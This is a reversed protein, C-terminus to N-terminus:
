GGESFGAAQKQLLRRENRMDHAIADLRDAIGFDALLAQGKSNFLINAPKIDRHIIDLKHAHLLADALQKFIDLASSISPPQSKIRAELSGGNAYDTILFPLGSEEDVGAHQIHLIHPNEDLLKLFNAERLFTDQEEQTISGKNLLKIAVLPWEKIRNHRAKFVSAQGGSAIEEIITYGSIQKGIYSQKEMISRVIHKRQSEEM